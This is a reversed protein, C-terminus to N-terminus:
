EIHMDTISIPLNAEIFLELSQKINENIELMDLGTTAAAVGENYPIFTSFGTNTKEVIVDLSEVKM